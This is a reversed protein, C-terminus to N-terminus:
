PAKLPKIKISRYSVKDGHDQLCLHGKAAKGFKPMTKFKSGEVRKNWDESDIEYEVIKEGNLWHEVRKGDVVLRVANWEGVPRTVDKSPAYLAYCSGASTLPSKGDHHKANDLVQMEIGTRWSADVDDEETVRYFIGSNGGAAIKWELKLEFSDFQEETVIDGGRDVRTLAGDQAKWGDPMTKQRFGRWGAATKGDFLLKWGDSKEQATLSNPAPEAIASAAGAASLAGALAFAAARSTPRAFM